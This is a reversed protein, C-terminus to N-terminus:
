PTPTLARRVTAASRRVTDATLPDLNYADFRERGGVHALADVVLEQGAGTLMDLARQRYYHKVHAPETVWEVGIAPQKTISAWLRAAAADVTSESPVFVPLDGM